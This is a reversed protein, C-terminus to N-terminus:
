INKWIDYYYSMQCQSHKFQWESLDSTIWFFEDCMWPIIELDAYDDKILYNQKQKEESKHTNRRNGRQHTIIMFPYEFLIISAQTFFCKVCFCSPWISFLLDEPRTAVRRMNHCIRSILRIFDSIKTLRNKLPIVNKGVLYLLYALTTLGMRSTTPTRTSLSTKEHCSSM